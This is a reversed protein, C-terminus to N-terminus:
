RGAERKAAWYVRQEAVAARILIEGLVQDRGVEDVILSAARIGLALPARGDGTRIIQWCPECMRWGDDEATLSPEGCFHCASM